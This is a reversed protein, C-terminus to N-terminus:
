EEAENGGYDETVTVTAPMCDYGQKLGPPDPTLGTSISQPRPSVLHSSSPASSRLVIAAPALALCLTQWGPGSLFRSREAPSFPCVPPRLSFLPQLVLSTLLDAALISWQPSSDLSCATGLGGVPTRQGTSAELRRKARGPRPEGHQFLVSQSGPAQCISNQSMCFALM